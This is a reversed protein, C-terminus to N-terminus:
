LYSKIYEKHTSLLYPHSEKYIQTCIALLIFNRLLYVDNIAKIPIADKILINGWGGFTVAIVAIQKSLPATKPKLRLDTPIM